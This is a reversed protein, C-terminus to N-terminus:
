GELLQQAELIADIMARKDGDDPVGKAVCIARLTKIRESKLEDETFTKHKM